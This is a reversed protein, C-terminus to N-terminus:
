CRNTRSNAFRDQDRQEMREFENVTASAGLVDQTGTAEGKGIPQGVFFKGCGRDFAECRRSITKKLWVARSPVL